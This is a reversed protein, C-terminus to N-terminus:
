RAQHRAIVVRAAATDKLIQASLAEVSAFRMEPRLQELFQVRLTHGYLDGSFDMLHVELTVESGGFTPKVGLNAAGPLWAGAANVRVRVAYVGPAPRLENQTEVNATPFGITRGRGLGKVVVGDLDFGHGLLHQAAELRGELLYERIKSSHVVVGDRTVPAVVHLRAGRKECAVGLTEPTGARLAGYTFDSGIVLHKAGVTDLLASEFAEPPTRAYALTFAQIFVADAGYEALLELKRALTNILKPALSPQLVKGPHPDFTLAACPGLSKAKALLAQHGLHVGDFNGLCVAPARLTPESALAHFVKM